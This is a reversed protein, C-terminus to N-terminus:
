FDRENSYTRAIEREREREGQSQSERCIDVDQGKLFIGKTPNKLREREKKANEGKRIHLLYTHVSYIGWEGRDGKLSNFQSIIQCM